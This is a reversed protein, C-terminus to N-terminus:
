SAAPLPYVEEGALSAAYQLAQRIDEPELTMDSFHLMLHQKALEQLETMRGSLMATHRKNVKYDISSASLKAGISLEAVVM